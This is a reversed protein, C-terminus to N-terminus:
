NRKKLEEFFDTFMCIVFMRNRVLSTHTGKKKDSVKREFQTVPDRHSEGENEVRPFNKCSDGAKQNEDPQESGEIRFRIRGSGTSIAPIAPNVGSAKASLATSPPTSLLNRRRISSNLPLTNRGSRTDGASKERERTRKTISKRIISRGAGESEEIKDDKRNKM